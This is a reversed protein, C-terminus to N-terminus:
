ASSLEMNGLAAPSYSYVRWAIGPHTANRTPQVIIAPSTTAAAV